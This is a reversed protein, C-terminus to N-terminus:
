MTRLRKLQLITSDQPWHELKHCVYNKNSRCRFRQIKGFRYMRKTWHSQETIKKDTATASRHPWISIQIQLPPSDGSWPPREHSSCNRFGFEIKIHKFLTKQKSLWITTLYKWINGATGPGSTARERWIVYNTSRDHWLTDPHNPWNMFFVEKMIEADFANFNRFDTFENPGIHNKQLKGLNDSDIRTISNFSSIAAVSSWLVVPAIVHCFIKSFICKASNSADNKAKSM